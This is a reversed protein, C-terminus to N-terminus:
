RAELLYVRGRLDDLTVAVSDAACAVQGTPTLEAAIRFGEPPTVKCTVPGPTQYEGVLLLGRDGSRIASLRVTEADCTAGSLLQGGTIIEEYPRLMAVVQSVARMDAGDFGASTYYGAGRGGNLLVELLICRLTEAPMEGLDGPQLWPIIDSYPMMERNRRIEDGIPAPRFGYLSPMAFQHVEPYLVSFDWIDHYVKEPVVDYAGAQFLATPALEKIRAHVARYFEAGQHAIFEDWTGDFGEYAASCRSCKQAEDNGERGGGYWGTFVECDYFFWEAETWSYRQAVLEVEEQWVDGRYSPCLWNAPEEDVQCMVEPHDKAQGKVAHLPSSNNVIDLGLQERARDIEAFLAADDPKAYRPFIPVANFGCAAYSELFDPWKQWFSQAMWAMSLHIQEFREVPEVHVAEITYNEPEQMGGDWRCGIRATGTWGDARDTAFFLTGWETIWVGRTPVIYRTFSGDEDEVPSAEFEETVSGGFRPNLLWRRLTVGEPLDVILECANGNTEEPRNDYGNLTQFSQFNAGAYTDPKAFYATVGGPQFNHVIFSGDYDPYTTADAIEHEGEFVWMEDSAIFSTQGYIVLGVYRGAAQLDRFRLPYTWAVGEEAPVGFREIDQEDLRNFRGTERWNEADDSVLAIVLDPFKLGSQEAGGLLRIGIEGIPQTEGLDLQICVSPEGHWAVANADWWIKEDARYGLEGDTLDQLDTENTTLRYGPVSSYLYPRGLALNTENDDLVFPRGVPEEEQTLAPAVILSVLILVILMNRM